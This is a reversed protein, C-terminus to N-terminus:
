SEINIRGKKKKKKASRLKSVISSSMGDKIKVGYKYHQKKQKTTIYKKSM